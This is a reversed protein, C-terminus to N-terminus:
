PAERRDEDPTNGSVRGINSERRSELFADVDAPEFRRSSGIRYSPLTGATVMKDIFRETVGLYDALTKRTFMPRADPHSATSM